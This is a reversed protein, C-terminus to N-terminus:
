SLFWDRHFVNVGIFITICTCDGRGWSRTCFCSMHRVSRQSWNVWKKGLDGKHGVGL